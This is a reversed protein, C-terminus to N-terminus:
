GRGAGRTSADLKWTSASWCTWSARGPTGVVIHAGNELSARQGRTAVGCVTVM